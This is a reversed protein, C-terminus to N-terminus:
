HCVACRRKKLADIVQQICVAEETKQERCSKIIQQSLQDIVLVPDPQDPTVPMKGCDYSGDPHTWWVSSDKAKVTGCVYDTLQVMQFEYSKAGAAVTATIARPDDPGTMGDGFIAVLAPVSPELDWEVLVNAAQVPAAILCVLAIMPWKM